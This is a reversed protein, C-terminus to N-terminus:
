SEKDKFVHVIEKIKLVRYPTKTTYDEAISPYDEALSKKDFRKREYGKWTAIVHGKRNVLNTKNELKLKIAEELEKKQKNIAKLDYKIKALMDVMKETTKDAEVDADILTSGHMREIDEVTVIAPPVRKIIHEFWFDEVKDVMAIYLDPDFEFYTYGFDYGNSLWALACRDIGSVGMQWQVQEYWYRPINDKDITMQTTKCELLMLQGDEDMIERDPSARIFPMSADHYIYDEVTNTLVRYGTKDSFWDAVAAELRHGAEMKANMPVTEGKVKRNYLELRTSYPNSGTIISVESAGIGNPRDQEWEYRSKYTKKMNTQNKLVREM